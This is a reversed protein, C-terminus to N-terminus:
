LITEVSIYSDIIDDYASDTGPGGDNRDGGGGGNLQDNGADGHIKDKGTGGGGLVTDNGLGGFGYDDHSGADILDNQGDGYLTDRGNEGFITDNHSGGKARDNDDGGRLQDRGVAGFMTDHGAQGYLTDAGFGGDLSDNGDRGLLRDGGDQGFLTDGGAGGDMTDNGAGGSLVNIGSNGFISDNSNGGTANEFTSSITDNENLEGNDALDNLSIFVPVSRGAYTVTDGTGAGGSLTDSGEGGNILDNGAGGDFNNDGADGTITDNGTGGVANDVTLLQDNEGTAGDNDTGDFTISVAATHNAYSVTDLGNDGFVTDTGLGADLTDDGDAGGLINNGSNGTIADNGSGGVANEFDTALTDTEGTTGSAGGGDIRVTLNESRSQYTATDNGGAGGAATDNGAGPDVRDGDGAGGDLNDDGDNGFVTDAGDGANVTDNGAGGSLQEPLDSANITDNGGAADVIVTTIGAPLNDAISITDNGAGGTIEITEFTVSLTTPSGDVTAVVQGASETLAITSGSGSGTVSLQGRVGVAFVDNTGDADSTTAVLFRNSGLSAMPSKNNTDTTAALTSEDTTGSGGADFSRARVTTGLNDNLFSIAFTGDDSMHISPHDQNGSTTTNAVTESGQTAGSSNFRQFYVGHSSGDQQDSMWTVVFAGSSNMAVESEDQLNATTSNVGTESGQAAGTNDFRQMWVGQNDADASTWTVVFNASDDMGASPKIQAGTTTTNVVFESGAATGNAAFRQAYVGWNDTDQGDSEWAVVFRGDGAVAITADRKNTATNTNATIESGAATGNAAYRQARVNAGDAWAVVFSGDDAVAVDPAGQDGATTTNVRFADGAWAGASDFRRAVVDVGAGGAANNDTWAVVGVGGNFSMEPTTQSGTADATARSPDAFPDLVVSAALLRRQELNELVPNVARVVTALQVSRNKTM